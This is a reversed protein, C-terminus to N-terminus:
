SLVFSSSSNLCRYKISSPFFVYCPPVYRRIQPHNHQHHHQFQAPQQHPHHHHGNAYHQQHHQYSAVSTASNSSPRMKHPSAPASRAASSPAASVTQHSKSAPSLSRDRRLPTASRLNQHHLQHNNSGTSPSLNVALDDLYLDHHIQADSSGVLVDPQPQHIFGAEEDLTSSDGPPRPKKKAKSWPSTVAPVQPQAQTSNYMEALRLTRLKTEIDKLQQLSQQYIMKRQRKVAKSPSGDNSLRLAASTIKRQIEYELELAALSEEKSSKARNLLNEPLTFSTGVRRRITPPAEGPSLPYEPPLQGSLSGEELCIKKLEELKIRLKEEMAAKRAKLAAVIEMRAAKAAESEEPEPPDLFFSLVHSPDKQLDSSRSKGLTQGGMKGNLSLTSGSHSLNSQSNSSATSLSLSTSSKSLDLAIDNLNRAKLQRSKSNRRDLYFQHQSIAMHWISKTLAQTQGFWVIVSIGSQQQHQQPQQVTRRGSSRDLGM